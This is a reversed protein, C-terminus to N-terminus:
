APKKFFCMIEEGSWAQEPLYITSVLEWGNKGMNAISESIGESNGPDDSMWVPKSKGMKYGLVLQNWKTTQPMAETYQPNM